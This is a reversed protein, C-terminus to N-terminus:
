RCMLRAIAPGVVSISVPYLVLFLLLYSLCGPMADNDRGRAMRNFRELRRLYEFTQWAIIPPAFIAILFAVPCHM